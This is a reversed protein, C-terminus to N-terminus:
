ARYGYTQTCIARFELPRDTEIRLEYVQERLEAEVSAIGDTTEDEAVAEGKLPDFLVLRYPVSRDKGEVVLSYAWQSLTPVPPEVQATYPAQGEFTEQLSDLKLSGDPPVM